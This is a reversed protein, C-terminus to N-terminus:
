YPIRNPVSLDDSFRLRCLCTDPKPVLCLNHRKIFLSHTAATSWKKIVYLFDPIFPDYDPIDAPFDPIFLGWDPIDFLFDPFFHKKFLTRRM